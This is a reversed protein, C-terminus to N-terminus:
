MRASARLVIERVFAGRHFFDRLCKRVLGGDKVYAFDLAGYPFTNTKQRLASVFASANESNMVYLQPSNPNVREMHWYHVSDYDM